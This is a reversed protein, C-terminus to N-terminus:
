LELTWDGCHHEAPVKVDPVLTRLIAALQTLRVDAADDVSASDLVLEVSKIATMGRMFSLTLAKYLGAAFWMKPMYVALRVHPIAALQEATRAEVFAAEQWGWTFTFVYSSYPLVRTESHIQRNVRLFSLAIQVRTNGTDKENEGFQTVIEQTKEPTLTSM